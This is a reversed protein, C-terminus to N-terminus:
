KEGRMDAGCNPCYKGEDCPVVGCVSCHQLGAITMGGVTTPRIWEGRKVEVLDAKNIFGGCPEETEMHRGYHEIHYCMVYHICDKCTAM